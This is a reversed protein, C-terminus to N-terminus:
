KNAQKLQLMLGISITSNVFKFSPPLSGYRYKLSIGFAETLMLDLDAGIYDSSSVQDGTINSDAKASM